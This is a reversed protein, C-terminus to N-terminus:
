NRTGAPSVPSCGLKGAPNSLEPKLESKQDDGSSGATMESPFLGPAICNVRIRAEAFTTAM